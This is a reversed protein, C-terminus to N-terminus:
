NEIPLWEGVRQGMRAKKPTYYVTQNNPLPQQYVLVTPDCGCKLLDQQLSLVKAQTAGNFYFTTSQIEVNPLQTIQDM